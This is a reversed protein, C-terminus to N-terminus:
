ELQDLHNFNGNFKFDGKGLIDHLHLVGQVEQRENIIPLVTIQYKEMINLADYAPSLPLVAHPNPSMLEDVRLDVLPVNRAIARRIDGDTLIGALRNEESIVLTVGIGLRDIEKIADPMTTGLAVQPIEEGILMIDANPNGEGAVARSRGQQSLPCQSCDHVARAIQPLDMESVPPLNTASVLAIPYDWIWEKSGNAKRFWKGAPSLMWTDGWEDVLKMQRVTDDREDQSIEGNTHRVKVAEVQEQFEIFQNTM